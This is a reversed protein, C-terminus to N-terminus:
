RRDRQLRHAHAVRRRSKRTIHQITVGLGPDLADVAGAHLVLDIAACHDSVFLRDRVHLGDGYLPIPEGDLANTVFLPVAKEPYQYPGITNAGRTTVVPTGYSRYFSSALM